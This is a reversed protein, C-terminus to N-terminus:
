RIVPEPITGDMRVLTAFWYLQPNHAMAEPDPKGHFLVVYVWHDPDYSIQELTITSLEWAETNEPLPILGMHISAAAIADSPSLPPNDDIDADWWDRSDTSVEYIYITGDPLSSQLQKMGGAFSTVTVLLMLTTMFLLKKM